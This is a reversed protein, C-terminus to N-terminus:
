VRRRGKPRCGNHAVPTLDKILKVKVGLNNVTRVAAEKGSGPGRTFIYVERLGSDLAKRLVTECAVQAAYATGKKAGKFGRSGSSSWGFANGDPDTLTVITNNFMSHIHVHGVPLNKKERKRGTTKKQARAM